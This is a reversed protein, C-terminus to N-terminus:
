LVAGRRLVDHVGRRAKEAGYVSGDPVALLLNRRVTGWYAGNFVVTPLIMTLNLIMLKSGTGRIKLSALKMVAYGLLLDALISAAKVLYQWPYNKVRSILLLIYLYPPSYDSAIYTGLGEKIGMESYEYIWNSLFIDYDDSVYDLLSIKALLIAGVLVSLLVQSGLPMKRGIRLQVLLTVAYLATFVGATFRTLEELRFAAFEDLRAYRAHYAFFLSFRRQWCSCCLRRGHRRVGSQWRACLTM